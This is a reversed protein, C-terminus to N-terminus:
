YKKFLYEHFYCIKSSISASALMRTFTANSSQSRTSFRTSEAVETPLTSNDELLPIEGRHRQARAVAFGIEEDPFQSNRMAIAMHFDPHDTSSVGIRLAWEKIATDEDVKVNMDEDIEAEEEEVSYISLETKIDHHKFMHFNLAEKCAFSKILGLKPTKCGKWCRFEKCSKKPPM